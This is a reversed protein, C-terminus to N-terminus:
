YCENVDTVSDDPFKWKMAEAFEDTQMLSLMEDWAKLSTELLPRLTDIERHIRVNQEDLKESLQRCEEASKFNVRGLEHHILQNREIVLANLREKHANAAEIDIDVRCGFALRSM